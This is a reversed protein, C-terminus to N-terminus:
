KKIATNTAAPPADAKPAFKEVGTIGLGGIVIWVLSDFLEKTVKHATFQDVFYSVALCLFALFAIVRKTSLVSNDSSDSLMGKINALVTEM